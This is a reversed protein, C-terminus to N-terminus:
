NRPQCQEFYQAARKQAEALQPPSLKAALADRTSIAGSPNQVGNAVAVSLWTYALSYNQPVGLGKEYSGGLLYQASADGQEAAQRFWAVAQQHDQPVGQGNAYMVGLNYQADAHGQEAAQRYWTVAQQHDQPVGLGKEYSVGLNYQVNAHDEKATQLSHPTHM